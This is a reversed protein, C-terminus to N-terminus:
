VGSGRIRRITMHAGRSRNEEKLKEQVRLEVEAEMEETTPCPRWDETSGARRKLISDGFRSYEYEIIVGTNDVVPKPKSFLGM